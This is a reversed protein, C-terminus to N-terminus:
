EVIEGELSITVVQWPIQKGSAALAKKVAAEIGGCCPVEMRVVRIDRIDNQRLIEALKESYDANDLKPCGILAIRGKLFDEHFSGCAYASCDAAILLRAGQFYPASVPALKIQVPWQRLQSPAAHDVSAAPSEPHLAMARMGPCGHSATKAQRAQVAAEDYAAAEREIISIADTPCAPLCDGLGDCYDDRILRAKGNELVIANEHCAHVCAGCGNCKESDIHVIKRKM